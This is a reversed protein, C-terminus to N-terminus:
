TECFLKLIGDVLDTAKEKELVPVGGGEEVEGSSGIITDRLYRRLAFSAARYTAHYMAKFDDDEDTEPLAATPMTNATSPRSNTKTQTQLQTSKPTPARLLPEAITALSPTTPTIITSDFDTELLPARKPQSAAVAPNGVRSNRHFGYLRMCTLITRTVLAKNAAIIESPSTSTLQPPTIQTDLQQQPLCPVPTSRLSSVSSTRPRTGVSANFNRVHASLPTAPSSQKPARSIKSISLARPKHTSRNNNISSGKDFSSIDLPEKKAKTIASNSLQDALSSSSRSMLQSVAQGGKRRVNKHYETAADFINAMRKRKPCPPLQDQLFEAFSENGNNYDDDNDNKVLSGPEPSLPPSPLAEAKTILASCLAVAYIRLEREPLSSTENDNWNGQNLEPFAPSSSPPPTPLRKSHLSPLSLMGYILIDTPKNGSGNTAGRLLPEEVTLLVGTPCQIPLSDNPNDGVDQDYVNNLLRSKWWEASEFDKIHVELAPGIRAYYPVLTPNVFSRLTLKVDRPLTCQGTLSPDVLSISTGHSPDGTGTVLGSWTEM